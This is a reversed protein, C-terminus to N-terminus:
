RPPQNNAYDYHPALSYNSTQVEGATGLAGRVVKLVQSTQEANQESAAQATSARTAVGINISARDPKASISAQGSARVFHPAAAVQAFVPSITLLFSLALIRVM